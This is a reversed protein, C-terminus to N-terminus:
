LIATHLIEGEYKIMEAIVGSTDKAKCSKLEATASRLEEMTFPSPESAGRVQEVNSTTVSSSYLDEYFKAFVEAIDDKSTRLTNTKDLISASGQRKQPRDIAEIYRLGRFESLIRKTKKEKWLRM